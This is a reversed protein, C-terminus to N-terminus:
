PGFFYFIVRLEAESWDWAWILRLKFKLRLEVDVWNATVYLKKVSLGVLLYVSQFQGVFM